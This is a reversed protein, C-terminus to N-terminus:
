RLMSMVMTMSYSGGCSFTLSDEADVSLPRGAQRMFDAYDDPKGTEVYITKVNDLADDAEPSNPYKHLLTKYQKLAEANNNLNYYAIGLKM